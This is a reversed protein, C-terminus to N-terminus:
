ACRDLIGNVQAPNGKRAESALFRAVRCQVPAFRELLVFDFGATLQWSDEDWLGWGARYASYAKEVAALSRELRAADQSTLVTTACECLGDLTGPHTPQTVFTM